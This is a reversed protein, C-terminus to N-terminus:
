IGPPYRTSILTACRLMLSVLTLAFELHPQFLPFNKSRVAALNIASRQM